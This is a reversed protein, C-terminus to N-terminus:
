YGSGSREVGRHEGSRNSPKRHHGASKGHHHHTKQPSTAERTGYSPTESPHYYPPPQGYYPVGLYQASSPSAILALQGILLAGSFIRM